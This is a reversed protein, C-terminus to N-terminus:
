FYLQSQLTVLIDKKTEVVGSALLTDTKRYGFDLKLNFNHQIVWFNAGVHPAVLELSGSGGRLYEIYALPEFWEHRYGAEVFFGVAGQPLAFQGPVYNTGKGYYLLQAKAILEDQASFPYEAFADASLAFYTKPVNNVYVAKPQLDTGVGFSILPTTSFYIGKLFFDPEAGLLNYRVQAALRPLGSDNLVPLMPSGAPLVQAGARVGEFIGLRYHLRDDLLMGRVQVGTDRFIKGAPLVVLQGHYDLAHLGIAGEITHRAFPVLMMGADVKLAPSFAYSLFADQIFTSADFRGGKGINPQDTDVFFSLEPTVSGWVMLRARRVFFDFSPSSGDPAGIGASGEGTSVPATLQFQPQILVGVNLAVGKTTDVLVPAAFASRAPLLLGLLSAICGVIWVRANM